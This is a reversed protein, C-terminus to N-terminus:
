KENSYHYSIAKMLDEGHRIEDEAIEVTVPFDDFFPKYLNYAATETKAMIRFLLKKGIVFNGCLVLNKMFSRPKLTRGTLKKLLAAHKGECAALEDLLERDQKNEMKLALARYMIVADLEQQQFAILDNERKSM